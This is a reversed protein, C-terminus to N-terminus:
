EHTVESTITRLYPEPFPLRDPYAPEGYPNRVFQGNEVKREQGDMYKTVLYIYLRQWETMTNDAQTDCFNTLYHRVEKDGPLRAVEADVAAIQANFHAELATQVAKIEPLM